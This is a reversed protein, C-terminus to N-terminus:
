KIKRNIFEPLKTCDVVKNVKQNVVIDLAHEICKVADGVDFLPFDEPDYRDSRKMIECGLARCEVATVAIAYAEKYHAVIPLLEERPMAGFRHVWAPVYKDIEDRYVPWPNGVFCAVQDKKIGKGFARVKKVNVCPPLYISYGYQLMVEATKKVNSISVVNQYKHLFIYDKSPEINNHIITIMNDVGGCTKFGILNWPRDTKVYPVIDEEFTKTYYYAGNFKSNKDLQGFKLLYNPDHTDIFIAGM